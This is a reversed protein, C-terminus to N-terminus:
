VKLQAWRAQGWLMAESWGLPWGCSDRASLSRGYGPRRIVAGLPLQAIAMGKERIGSLVVHM